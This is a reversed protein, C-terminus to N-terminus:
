KIFIKKFITKFDKKNKQRNEMMQYYIYRKAKQLDNTLYVSKWKYIVKYFKDDADTNDTILLYGFYKKVDHGGIKM